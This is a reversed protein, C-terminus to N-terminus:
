CRLGHAAQDEEGKKSEGHEDGCGRRRARV